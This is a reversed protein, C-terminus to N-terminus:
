IEITRGGLFFIKEKGKENDNQYHWILEWITNIDKIEKKCNISKEEKLDM